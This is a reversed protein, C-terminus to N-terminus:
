AVASLEDILAALYEPLLRKDHDGKEYLLNFYKSGWLQRRVERLLDSFTLHKKKYWATAAMKIPSSMQIRDAVLVVMSYLAFLVPTTRAIAKDSWQRQTEVGLHERAERHTVEQNWRAVFWEIVEVATLKFDIDTGMLAIPEYMGELDKLLVLRIPLPEYGQACWLCTMTAYAIRRKKGGYWKVIAETWKLDPCSLMERPPMLRHGKKAPRGCGQKEPAFDFLRADHRLRSVLAIGYKLSTWALAM